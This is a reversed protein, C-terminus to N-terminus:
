DHIVLKWLPVSFHHLFIGATRRFLLTTIFAYRFEGSFCVTVFLSNLAASVQASQAKLGISFVICRDRSLPGEETRGFIRGTDGRRGAVDVM